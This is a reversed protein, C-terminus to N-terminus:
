ARDQVRLAAQEIARRGDPSVDAFARLVHVMDPWQELVVDVGSARAALWIPSRTACM